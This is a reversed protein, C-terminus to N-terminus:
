HGHGGGHGNGHEGSNGHEGAQSNNSNENSQEAPNHENEVETEQEADVENDVEQETEVENADQGHGHSILGLEQWVKGWGGSENRMDLLEQASVGENAQGAALALAIEGVGYHGSCFWDLVQTYDAGYESAIKALAPQAADTNTCYFGKNVKGDLAGDETLPTVSAATLNTEELAGQVEVQDGVTLTTLDFGAPPTITLTDGAETAIQFTGATMDVSLVTGSVTTETQAFAPIVSLLVLTFALM